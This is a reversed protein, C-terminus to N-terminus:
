QASYNKWDHDGLKNWLDSKRPGHSSNSKGHQAHEDYGVESDLRSQGRLRLLKIQHTEDSRQLLRRKTQKAQGRKEEEKAGEQREVVDNELINFIKGGGSVYQCINPRLTM